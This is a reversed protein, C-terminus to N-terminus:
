TEDGGSLADGISVVRSAVALAALTLLLLMLAMAGGMGWNFLEQVQQVVVEGLMADRPSGLLAPTIYFGLSIVFVLLVGAFVGPLSLPLFVRWFAQFPSAGLNNAARVYNMDIRQMVSYIPLVMFPLLIHVMGITVGLLNRVLPVPEDIVGIGLLFSNIIGTDQLIVTWAYTRVLLSSWFPILVALVMLNATRKNTLNMLYAYPYALVLCVVTVIVSVQVTNWLVKLYVNSEFFEVYNNLGFTPETVSRKLIEYLPYLLFFALFITAPVTLWAWRNAARSAARTLGAVM